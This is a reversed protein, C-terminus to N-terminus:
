DKLTIGVGFLYHAMPFFGTHMVEDNMSFVLTQEFREALLERLTNHDKLNIHPSAGPESSYKDAEINPTGIILMSHKNLSNCLNDMIKKEIGPELHEWVDITYAADFKTDPTRDVMDLCEFRINGLAGFRSQYHSFRQKNGEILIPEIDTCLLEDVVQGVLKSGFADGCGLELVSGRGQLMKACFKYRALVFLIHKPDNMISYSMRPGLQFSPTYIIKDVHFYQADYDIDDSFFSKPYAGMIIHKNLFPINNGSDRLNRAKETWIIQAKGELKEVLGTDEILRNLSGLLPAVDTGNLTGEPLHERVYESLLDKGNRISKILRVPDHVDTTQLKYNSNTM